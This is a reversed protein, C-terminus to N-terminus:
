KKSLIKNSYDELEKVRESSIGYKEKRKDLLKREDMSILGDEMLDEYLELYEKEKNSLVMRQSDVYRELEKARTENIKYKERRKELLRREDDSIIEDEYLDDYLEIYSLENETFDNESSLSSINKGEEVKQQAFNITGSLSELPAFDVILKWQTVKESTSDSESYRRDNRKTNLNNSARFGIIPNKYKGSVLMNHSEDIIALERESLSNYDRTSIEIECHLIEGTFRQKVLAPMMPNHSYWILNEPLYPKNKPSFTQISLVSKDQNSKSNRTKNNQTAKETKNDLKASYSQVKVNVDADIGLKVLSEKSSSEILSVTDIVGKLHVLKIMTAGLAQFIHNFEMVQSIFLSNEYNNKDLYYDQMFPHAIYLEKSKPHNPEFKIHNSNNILLPFIGEPKETPLSEDLYIIKRENFPLSYFTKVMENYCDMLNNQLEDLTDDDNDDWLSTVFSFLWLAKDYRDQNYYGLAEIYKLKLYLNEFYEKDFSDKDLKEFKAIARLIYKLAEEFKENEILAVCKYFTVDYILLNSTYLTAFETIFSESLELVKDWNEKEFEALIENYPANFPDEIQKSIEEIVTSLAFGITISDLFCSNHITSHSNDNHYIILCDEKYDSSQINEWDLFMPDDDTSVVIGFDTIVLFDKKVGFNSSVMDSAKKSFLKGIGFTAGEILSETLSEQEIALFIKTHIDLDFAQRM